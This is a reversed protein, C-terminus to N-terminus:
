SVIRKDIIHKVKGSHTVVEFENEEILHTEFKLALEKCSFILDDYNKLLYASIEESSVGIKSEVKLMLKMDLVENELVIQILGNYNFGEELYTTFKNFNLFPGGAKFADSSRGQLTFKPDTRGCSCPKTNIFGMDGIDYRSINQGKRAKPSFILRGSVGDEVKTESDIDFIELEQISSLLHYENSACESCQYGMPGADNSGYAAGRVLEVGFEEKLYKIQELAFHDGGFFLKKIVKHKKFLEKNVEFLKMILSPVTLLTNINKEVMLAGVEELDDVIGMPYQPVKLYEMITFFSLFGGYLHGAAFMNMVKDTKPDLGASYLGYATAKMQTHYDEYTFYSYTTKGSSGGSKFTLDVYKNPVDLAQFAEKDMISINSLDREYSKEFERFSVVSHLQDGLLLSIKKMFSPLAYVGDHPEGIYGDHMHGAERIRLCGAGFLARSLEVIRNKPAILAATQLYSKMPHLTSIIENAELPKILITRFLPSIGLGKRKDAIVSWSFDKARIVHTLGMAEETKAISIVTSIEAQAGSSPTTRLMKSSTEELITAFNKSFEKLEEFDSSELFIDQPSSCANQDLLCIDEAVKKMSETDNINEKAFYAFSIKHGWPVFRVGQPTMNQVSKIAEESGWASVVDACDIISQLLTQEKSSVELVIIYPKLLEKTDFELFAEMFLQPLQNQSASTKLININGSLLGEFVCLVGVTFVNTPAIHVLTGLPMWSEFHNEKMSIRDINFPNVDGLECLLKKELNEKSIFSVISGIMAQAKEKSAEQTKMALLVFKEYLEGHTLLEDHMKQSIELFYELPFPKGLIPNTFTAINDINNQLSENSIWTGQWLHTTQM